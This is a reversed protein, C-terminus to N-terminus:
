KEAASLESLASLADLRAQANAMWPGVIEKAEEPLSSLEELSKVLDGAGVSAEARSLIADTSDGEIPALSRANTQRKLFATLREGASADQPVVTATSLAARAVDPFDRQLTNLTPMGTEAVATLAKPPDDFFALEEQFATGNEVASTLAALANTREAQAAAAAAEAEFASARAKAEEVQATADTTLQELESQFAALQDDTMNGSADAELAMQMDSLRDELGTLRDTLTAMTSAVDSELTDLRAAMEASAPDSAVEQTELAEIRAVIEGPIEGFEAPMGKLAELDASLADLRESIPATDVPTIGALDSALGSQTESLAGVQTGLEAIQAEFASTDIAPENGQDLVGFHSAGYGILGALVGGFVLPLASSKEEVVPSQPAVPLPDDEVKAEETAPDTDTEDTVGDESQEADNEETEESAAAETVEETVDEVEGEIVVPADPNETSEGQSADLQDSDPKSDGKETKKSNNSNTSKRALVLRGM